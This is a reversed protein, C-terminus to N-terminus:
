LSTFRCMFSPPLHFDLRQRFRRERRETVDNFNLTGRMIRDILTKCLAEIIQGPNIHPFDVDTNDASIRPWLRNGQLKHLAMRQAALNEIGQLVPRPQNDHAHLRLVGLTEAGETGRATLADIVGAIGPM